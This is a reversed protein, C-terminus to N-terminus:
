RMQVELSPAIFRFVQWIEPYSRGGRPWFEGRTRVVFVRRCLSLMMEARRAVEQDSNDTNM